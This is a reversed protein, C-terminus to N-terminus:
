EEWKEEFVIESMSLRNKGPATGEPYGIPLMGLVVVALLILLLTVLLLRKNKLM